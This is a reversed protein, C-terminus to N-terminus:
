KTAAPQWGGDKTPAVPNPLNNHESIRVNAVKPGVYLLEQSWYVPAFWALDLVREQARKLAADRAAPDTTAAAENLASTVQEDKAGFPNFTTNPAMYTSAFQAMGIGALPSWVTAAYKKNMLDGRFQQITPANDITIKIGIKGLQTALAQGLATNPDLLTTDSVTLAFGDAYGAEQMLSKAKDLDFSYTMDDLSGPMSPSLVQDTTGGYEGIIAKRIADRDIAYNIAQRVRQDGLQPALTGDRDLLLLGSWTYPAAVVELGASKAAAATTSTGSLAVDIQGTRAASLIANPEAISQIVVHKYHIAEQNWYKPNADFVYKQGNVTTSTNLVYQGAGATSSELSKPNTLASPNIIQGALGVQSFVQELNPTPASFKLSIKNAEATDISTLAALDGSQPGKADKFYQISKAVAQNDLPTGDAFTVGERLTLSFGTNTSDTYKWETALDPQYKGDPDKFILPEYALDVFIQGPGIGTKAPDMSIPSSLFQVTLTEGVEGSPTKASGTTTTASPAGGGCASLTFAITALVGILAARGTKRGRSRTSASTKM